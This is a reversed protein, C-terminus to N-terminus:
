DKKAEQMKQHFRSWYLKVTENALINDNMFRIGWNITLSCIDYIFAIIRFTFKEVQKKSPLNAKADQWQKVADNAMNNTGKSTEASKATISEAKSDQNSSDHTSIKGCETMSPEVHMQSTIKGEKEDSSKYSDNDSSGYPGSQTKGMANGVSSTSAKTALNINGIIGGKTNEDGSAFFRVLPRSSHSKHRLNQAVIAYDTRPFNTVSYTAKIHFKM